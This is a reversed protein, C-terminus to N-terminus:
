SPRSLPTDVGFMHRNCAGLTIKWRTNRSAATPCASRARTTGASLPSSATAPTTPLPWASPAPPRSRCCTPTACATARIHDKLPQPLRSAFSQGSLYLDANFLPFAGRERALEASAEYSANRMGESIQRAMERAQATDYRLNLM